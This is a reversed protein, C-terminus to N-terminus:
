MPNSGIKNIDENKIPWYSLHGGLLDNIKALRMLMRERLIDITKVGCTEALFEAYSTRQAKLLISPTHRLFLFSVPRWMYYANPKPPPLEVIMFLFLDADMYDSFSLAESLEPYEFHKKILDAQLSIRLRRKGEEFLSGVFQSVDKFTANMPGHSPRMFSVPIWESFVRQIIRWKEEKLLSGILITYLEHGLFKYYDFDEENYKGQFGSPLDYREIIHGFWKHVEFAADTDNMIAIVHSLRAFVAITEVANNLSEILNDISGGESSKLPAKVELQGLFAKLEQRLKIIRNPQQHEIAVIVTEFLPTIEQPEKSTVLTSSLAQQLAKSLKKREAARETAEIPMSYTMIRRTRLDFPLDSLSGYALNFIMIVRDYGM